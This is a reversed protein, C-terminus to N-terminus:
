PQTTSLGGLAERLVSTQENILPRDGVAQACATRPIQYAYDYDGVHAVFYQVTDSQPTSSFAGKPYRILTGLANRGASCAIGYAELGASSLGVSAKGQPAYKLLPMESALPLNVQVGWDKITLTQQHNAAPTASIEQQVLAEADVQHVHDLIAGALTSVLAVGVAVVLSPVLERALGPFKSIM